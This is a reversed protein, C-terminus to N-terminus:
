AAPSPWLLHNALPRRSVLQPLSPTRYLQGEYASRPELGLALKTLSPPLRVTHLLAVSCATLRLEQLGTFQQLPCSVYLQTPCRDYEAFLDIELRRLGSLALGWSSGLEFPVIGMHLSLERLGGAGLAALGTQLAQQLQRLEYAMFVDHYDIRYDASGLCLALQQTHGAAAAALWGCFAQTASGLLDNRATGGAARSFHLHHELCRLLEPSYVLRRWRKCM